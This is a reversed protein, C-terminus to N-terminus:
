QRAFPTALALAHSWAVATGVKRFFNGVGIKAPFGVIVRVGSSVHFWWM